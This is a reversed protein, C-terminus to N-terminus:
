LNGRARELNQNAGAQAVLATFVVPPRQRIIHVIDARGEEVM